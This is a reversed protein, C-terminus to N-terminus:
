HRHHRHHKIAAAANSPTRHRPRHVIVLPRSPPALVSLAVVLWCSSLVLPRHLSLVVLSSPAVVLQRSSVVLPPVVLRHSSLLAARRSAVCCGAPAALPRSPPTPRLSLVLFPSAVIVLQRSPIVLPQRLSLVTLPLAIVLQRSLIVLPCRLSLVNLPCRSPPVILPRCSAIRCGAPVVLRCWPPAVLPLVVEYDNPELRFRNELHCGHGYSSDLSFWFSQASPIFKLFDALHDLLADPESSM